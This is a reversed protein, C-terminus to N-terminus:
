DGGYYKVWIRDVIYYVIMAIALSGAIDVFGHVALVLRTFAIFLAFIMYAIFSRKNLFAIMLSFAALAHLSPFSPDDPCYELALEMCPREALILTKLAIGIVVAFVVVSIIKIIKPFRREGLFIAVALIGIYILENNIMLSIDTLLQNNISFALETIIDM